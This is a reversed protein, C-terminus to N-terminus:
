LFPVACGKAHHIGGRTGKEAVGLEWTGPQHVGQQCIELWGTWNEIEHHGRSVGVYKCGCGQEEKKSRLSYVMQVGLGVRVFAPIPGCIPTVCGGISPYVGAAGSLCSGLPEPAHAVCGGLSRICGLAGPLPAPRAPIPVGTPTHHPHRVVGLHWSCYSPGPPWPKRWTRSCKSRKMWCGSAPPRGKSDRTRPDWAGWLGPAARPRCGVRVCRGPHAACQGSRRGVQRGGGGGRVGEREPHEGGARPVPVHQVGPVHQHAGADGEGSSVSRQATAQPGPGRCAPIPGVRCMSGVSPLCRIPGGIGSLNCSYPAPGECFTSEKVFILILPAAYKGETFDWFPSFSSKSKSKKTFTKSKPYFSKPLFINKKAIKCSPALFVQQQGLFIAKKTADAKGKEEESGDRLPLQTGSVHPARHAGHARGDGRQHHWVAFLSSLGGHANVGQPPSEEAQTARPPAQCVVDCSGGGGVDETALRESQAAYRQVATKTPPPPPHPLFLHHM